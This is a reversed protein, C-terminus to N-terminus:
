SCKRWLVQEDPYMIFMSYKLKHKDNCHNVNIQRRDRDTNIFIFLVPIKNQEDFETHIKLNISFQMLIINKSAYLFKLHNASRSYGEWSPNQEMCNTLYNESFLLHLATFSTMFVPLLQLVFPLSTEYNICYLLWKEKVSDSLL